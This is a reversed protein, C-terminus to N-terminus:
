KMLVSEQKEYYEVIYGISVADEPSFDVSDLPSIDERVILLGGSTLHRYSSNLIQRITARSLANLEEREQPSSFVFVLVGNFGFRYSIQASKSFVGRAAILDFTRGGFVDELATLEGHHLFAQRHTFAEVARRDGDIGEANYGRERLWEVFYGNVCGLELIRTSPKSTRATIMDYLRQYHPAISPEYMVM